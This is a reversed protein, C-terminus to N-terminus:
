DSGTPRSGNLGPALEGAIPIRAWGITRLALESVHARRERRRRDIPPTRRQQRRELRRRDFIVKVEEEGGFAYALSDYRDPFDRSVVFM